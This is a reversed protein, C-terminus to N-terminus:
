WAVCVKETILALDVWVHLYNWRMVNNFVKNLAVAYVIAELYRKAGNWFQSIASFVVSANASFRVRCRRSIEETVFLM